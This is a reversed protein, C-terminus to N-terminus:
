NDSIKVEIGIPSRPTGDEHLGEHQIVIVCKQKWFKDDSKAWAFLAKYRDAPMGSEAWFIDDKGFNACTFRNGASLGVLKFEQTILNEKRHQYEADVFADSLESRTMNSQSLKFTIPM